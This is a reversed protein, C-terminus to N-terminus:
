DGWPFVLNHWEIFCSCEQLGTIETQPFCDKLFLVSVSRSKQNNWGLCASADLLLTSVMFWIYLLPRDPVLWAGPVQSLWFLNLLWSLEYICLMTLLQLASSVMVSNKGPCNSFTYSFSLPLTFWFVMGLVGIYIYIYVCAVLLAEDIWHLVQM